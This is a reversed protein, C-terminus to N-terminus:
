IKKKKFGERVDKVIEVDGNNNVKRSDDDKNMWAYRMCVEIETEIAKKDIPDIVIFKPHMRLVNKANDSIEVKDYIIAEDVVEVVCEELDRDSCKVNKLKEGNQTPKPSYRQVLHRIKNANKMKVINRVHEVEMKMTRKLELDVFTDNRIM